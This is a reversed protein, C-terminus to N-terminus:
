HNSPNDISGKEGAPNQLYGHNTKNRILLYSLCILQDLFSALLETLSLTKDNQATKHM